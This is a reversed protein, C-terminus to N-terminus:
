VWGWAQTQPLAKGPEQSRGGLPVAELVSHFLPVTSVGKKWVKARRGMNLLNGTLNSLTSSLVARIECVKIRKNSSLACSSLIATRQPGFAGKFAQLRM